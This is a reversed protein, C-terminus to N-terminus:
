DLDELEGLGKELMWAALAERYIQNLSVENDVMYTRLKHHDRKTLYLTGTRTEKRKEKPPMVDRSSKAEDLFDGLDTKSKPM